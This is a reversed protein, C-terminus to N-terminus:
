RIGYKIDYDIENMFHIRMDEIERHLYQVVETRNRTYKMLLESNDVISTNGNNDTTETVTDLFGEKNATQTNDTDYEKSITSTNGNDKTTTSTLDPTDELIQESKYYQVVREVSEALKISITSTNRYRFYHNRYQRYLLKWYLDIIDKDDVVDAFVLVDKIGNNFEQSTPYLRGLTSLNDYGKPVRHNNKQIMGM